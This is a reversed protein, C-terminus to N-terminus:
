LNPSLQTLCACSKLRFLRTTIKVWSVINGLVLMYTEQLRVIFTRYVQRQCDIWEMMYSHHHTPDAARM